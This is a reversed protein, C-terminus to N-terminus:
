VIKLWSPSFNRIKLRAGALKSSVLIQKLNTIDSDTKEVQFNSRKVFRSNTENSHKPTTAM